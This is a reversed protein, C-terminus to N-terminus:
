VGLSFVVTDPQMVIELVSVVGQDDAAAGGGDEEEVLVDSSEVAAELSEV